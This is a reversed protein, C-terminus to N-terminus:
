RYFKFGLNYEGRLIGLRSGWDALQDVGTTLVLRNLLYIDLQVGVMAGYDFTGLESAFPKNSSQEGGLLVGYHLNLYISKNLQTLTHRIGTMLYITNFSTQQILGQEERLGIFYSLNNSLLKAYQFSCGVSYVSTLGNFQISQMGAIHRLQLQPIEEDQAIAVKHFLFLMSCSVFFLCHIKM